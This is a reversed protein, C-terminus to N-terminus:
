AGADRKDESTVDKTRFLANVAGGFGGILAGVIMNLIQLVGSNATSDQLPHLYILTALAVLAGGLLVFAFFKEHDQLRV